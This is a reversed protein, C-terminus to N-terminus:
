GIRTAGDRIVRALTAAVRADDVPEITRPDLLVREGEIRAIIGDRRLAAAISSANRGRGRRGAVVVLRTPLGEEPLSGGGIMSRGPCVAAAEGSPAAMALARADLSELSAAIMRWVPIRETAGQLYLGLTAALGAITSKDVRLARALPHRKMRDVADSTGAILGAQPGGLMKDGSFMVVGAGAAISAQPTPEPALGYERTDLLCGSGVDDILMVGRDRALTALDALDPAETFGVVRFNSPHVRMIAATRPGIADAYDGIRTRNTTGVEVLRARSQRMVDPIRFGGGIEILQGRSVVVEKGPALAALTLLVASANNNVAMAAQAGTVRRILPELLTHRAGRKGSATDYELNTYGRSAVAMAEIAEEALPARGLNTQLVVGTANILPQLPPRLATEVDAALEHILEQPSPPAEGASIRERWGAILERALAVRLRQSAASSVEPNAALSDVSPLSRRPQGSM